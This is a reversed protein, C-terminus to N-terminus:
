KIIAEAWSLYNRDPVGPRCSNVMHAWVIQERYPSNISAVRCYKYILIDGQVPALSVESLKIFSLKKLNVTLYPFINPLEPLSVKGGNYGYSLMTSVKEIHEKHEKIKQPSAGEQPKVFNHFSEARECEAVLIDMDKGEKVRAMDCSPTLLVFFKEETLSKLIDAVLLKDSLPPYLYQTWTPNNDDDNLKSNFFESAQKNLMFKVVADGPYGSSLKVAPRLSAMMVSTAENIQCKVDEVLNLYKEWEDIKEIAVNEDGKLIKDIFPNNPVEDLSLAAAAGSYVIIPKDHAIDFIPRGRDKNNDFDNMWDMVIIDPNNEKIVNLADDFDSTLVIWGKDTYNNQIEKVSNLDDEILLLKM